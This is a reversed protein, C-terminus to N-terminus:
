GVPWPFGCDFLLFYENRPLALLGIRAEEVRVCAQVQGHWGARISPAACTPTLTLRALKTRAGGTGCSTNRPEDRKVPGNASRPLVTRGAQDNMWSSQVPNNRM